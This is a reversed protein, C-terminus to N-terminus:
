LIVCRINKKINNFKVFIKKKEKNMERKIEKIKIQQIHKIM